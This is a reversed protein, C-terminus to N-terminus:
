APVDGGGPRGAGARILLDAFVGADVALVHGRLDRGIVLEDPVGLIAAVRPNCYLVVGDETLTAAGEQMHEILFRYPRDATELTYVRHEGSTENIVVADVRGGHIAELTERAEQLEADLAGIRTLLDPISLTVNDQPM